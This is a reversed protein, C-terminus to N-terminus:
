RTALGVGVGGAFTGVGLGTLALNKERDSLSGWWGPAEEFLGRGRKVGTQLTETASQTLGKAGKLAKGAQRVMQKQTKQFLKGAYMAAEGIGPLAAHKKMIEEIEADTLLDLIAAKKEVPTEVKVEPKVEPKVEEKKPEAEKQIPSKDLKYVAVLKAAIKNVLRTEVDSDTTVAEAEKTVEPEPEKVEPKAEPASLSDLYNIVIKDAIKELVDEEIEATPDKVAATKEVVPEAKAEVKPEVKPAPESVPAEKSALFREVAINAMKELLAESKDPEALRRELEQLLVGM